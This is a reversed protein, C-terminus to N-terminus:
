PGNRLNRTLPDFLYAGRWERSALECSAALPLLGDTGDIAKQIAYLDVRTTRGGLSSSDEGAAVYGPASAHVTMAVDPILADFTVGGGYGWADCPETQTRSQGVGQGAVVQVTADHICIGSDAVVMAWVSGSAAPVVPNPVTPATPPRGDGSCGLVALTTLLTGTLRM